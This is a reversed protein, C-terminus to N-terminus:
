NQITKAKVIKLPLNFNIGIKASLYEHYLWHYTKLKSLKDFITKSKLVRRWVEIFRNFASGRNRSRWRNVWVSCVKWRLLYINLWCLVEENWTFLCSWIWCEKTGSEFLSSRLCQFFNFLFSWWDFCWWINWYSCSKGLIWAAIQDFLLICTILLRIRQNPRCRLRYKFRISNFTKLWFEPWIWDICYILKKDLISKIPYFFYNLTKSRM